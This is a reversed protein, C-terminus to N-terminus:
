LWVPVRRRGLRGRCSGRLDGGRAGSCLWWPGGATRAWLGTFKPVLHDQQASLGVPARAAETRTRCGGARRAPHAGGSRWAWGPAGGEHLRTEAPGSQWSAPGQSGPATCHIRRPCPGRRPSKGAGAFTPSGAGAAGHGSCLRRVEMFPMLGICGNFNLAVPGRCRQPTWSSGTQSPRPRAAVVVRQLEVFVSEGVRLVEVLEVPISEIGTRSHTCHMQVNAAHKANSAGEAFEKM